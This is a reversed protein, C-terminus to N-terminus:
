TYVTDWNLGRVHHRGVTLAARPRHRSVENGDRSADPWGAEQGSRCDTDAPLLIRPM